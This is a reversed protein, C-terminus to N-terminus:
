TSNSKIEHSSNNLIQIQISNLITEFNYFTESFKIPKSNGIDAMPWNEGEPRSERKRKKGKKEWPGITNGSRLGGGAQWSEVSKEVHLVAEPLCAAARSL